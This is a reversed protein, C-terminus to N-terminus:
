SKGIEIWFSCGEKKIGEFMPHSWLPTLIGCLREDYGIFTNPLLVQIRDSGALLLVALLYQESYFRNAWAPPYDNPLFIDHFHVVVGPKLRPLVDLFFVTVDSNTFCRHTSDVFVMDKTGLEDFIELDSKELPSRIIQDCISGIEYRPEPDISIIKTSLRYDKKARFTFMTSIGSGIEVYRAPQYVAVM